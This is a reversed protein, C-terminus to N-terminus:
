APERRLVGRAGPWPTLPWAGDPLRERRGIVLAGGPVVRALLGSLVERQRADDFYTFALNRCLVLDFPGPPMRERLDECRLEVRERLTEALELLGGAAAFASDRLPAPIERRSGPADRARRARELLGPDADTAVVEIALGPAAVQWALVVSYPEEGSACGASWARMARAGRAAASRALAPLVDRALSEFVDRDRWFRSIPVRCCAGFASWEGPDADLRARYAEWEGLGLEAMRRAIRRCVQRRVRRFGEWRLGLRPLAWQLLAVCDADKVRECAVLAGICGEANPSACGAASRPWSASRRCRFAGFPPANVSPGVVREVEPEPEM